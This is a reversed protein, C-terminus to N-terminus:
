ALNVSNTVNLPTSKRFGNDRGRWRDPRGDTRVSTRSAASLRRRAAALEPADSDATKWEQLFRRYQERAEQIRGQKEYALALRYRPLPIAPYKALVRQYETIAENLMGLEVYADALCDELWDPMYFPATERLAQQFLAIAEARRGQALALRGEFYRRTRGELRQGRNSADVIGRLYAATRRTDGHELDLMASAQARDPRNREERAAAERAEALREQRLYIRSLCGHGRAREAASPAAAIYRECQEIAERYRGQQYLLSALHILALDFDTKVVLARRYSRESEVPQGAVQHAMGLTDWSNPEGALLATSREAAEVAEKARGKTAFVRSLTNWGTTSEPDLVLAKRLTEVSEEVRGEGSLLWGLRIHAEVDGPDNAILERFARIAGPYDQNAIAYWAAIHLRDRPTLRHSLRFATDLYPKAPGSEAWTVAYTYGIRAHAMAFSPDLEIARQFLELAETPHLAEAKEVGQLYKRYAEINGTMLSSLGALRDQQRVPHGLLAALRLALLDVHTLIQAPQDAVFSESARLSGDAVQYIQATVRVRDGLRAFAGLLVTTAGADRGLKRALDLTIAEAGPRRVAGRQRELIRLQPSRSLNAALMNPLGDRLWDLEASAAQNEFPLVAIADARPPATSRYLLAAGVCVWAAAALLLWKRSFTRSPEAVPHEIECTVEVSTMQEVSEATPTEGPGIFQYGTRSVTRIYRPNRSDDALARRVENVCQMISNDTVSAGQWLADLLEQRSVVRDSREILYVLLDFTRARLHITEGDRSVSRQATDVEMGGSRYLPQRVPVM